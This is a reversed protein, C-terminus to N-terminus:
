YVKYQRPKLNIINDELARSPNFNAQGNTLHSIYLMGAVYAATSVATTNVISKGIQKTIAKGDELLVKSKKLNSVPTDASIHLKRMQKGRAAKSIGYRNAYINQQKNYAAYREKNSNWEAKASKRAKSGRSTSKKAAKWAARDEKYLQKNRRDQEKAYQRNKGWNTRPTSNFRNRRVGWKMGKVGYHALYDNYYPM